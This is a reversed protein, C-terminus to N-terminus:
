PSDLVRVAVLCVAMEIITQYLIYNWKERTNFNKGSSLNSPLPITEKPSVTKLSHWMPNTSYLESLAYATRLCFLALPASLFVFVAQLNFSSYSTSHQLCFNHM